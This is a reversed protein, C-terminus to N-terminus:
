YSCNLSLTTITGQPRCLLGSNQFNTIATEVSDVGTPENGTPSEGSGLDLAGEVSADTNLAGEANYMGELEEFFEANSDIEVDGETDSGAASSSVAETPAHGEASDSHTEAGFDFDGTNFGAYMSGGDVAVAAPNGSGIDIADNFADNFGCVPALAGDDVFLCGSSLALQLITWAAPPISGVCEGTSDSANVPDDDAYSYPEDTDNVLPDVTLFQSSAPDYYRARLYILGDPDTLAGTYGRLSTAGTHRTVAGYSSYDYSGAVTGTATTLLRVSGQQDLQLYDVTNGTIQEIPEGGPGNVFTTAGAALLQPTGQAVDWLDTQKDRGFQSTIRLGDGDYSFSATTKGDRWTVLRGAQDYTLRAPGAATRDGLKDYKYTVATSGHRALTSLEGAANYTLRAGPLRTVEDGSNYSYAGAGDKAVQGLDTYGYSASRTGEAGSATSKTVQGLPNDTLTLSLQTTGDATLTVTAPTDDRTYSTTTTAGNPYDTKVLNGDADYSFRTTHGLWDGVSLLRGDADYKRTVKHDGPYVIALLEGDNDYRYAVTGGKSWAVKTIKGEYNYSYTTTGTSDKMRTREGDANYSLTVDATPDKSYRISKTQGDATYAYRTVRGLADTVAALQGAADYTYGSKGAAPSVSATQQGLANYTFTTTQGLGNSWSAMEGDRTWTEHIVSGNARQYRLLENDADYVYRSTQGALDTAALLFHDGNYSRRSTAGEPDTASTVDGFPDYTFRTTYDAATAGKLNGRPNTVSTARGLVDFVSTTTDGTPDTSSTRDGDIDYGYTTTRGDGDTIATVDGPYESDGYTETVTSGTSGDARTITLVNGASDYTYTTTNGTATTVVLPEGFSNYTSTATYGAYDTTSTVDGSADYSSSSIEGEPDTVTDLGNTLLDYSYRTTAALPTGAARTSSVLEGDLFTDVTKSGTPDTMTTQNPSYAFSTRRGMPDSQSTVRGARNYVNTTKGGDPDIMSLMRHRSDYSFSWVGGGQDTVSTLDDSTNYRFSMTYGSPEHLSSMLGNSGYGFTLTRGAPDTVKTLRGASYSLSTLYGNRDVESVLQGAKDFGYQDGNVPTFTYGGGVHATLTALVRAPAVYEGLGDSTFAVQAGNQEHVTVVGTTADTTIAMGYSDAWGYGLPGRKSALGSSYTRTFQLPIGRGPVTVDTFEHWFEGTSCDVPWSASCTTPQEVPSGGGILESPGPALSSLNVRVAPPGGMWVDGEADTTLALASYDYGPFANVLTGFPFFYAGGGPLLWGIGDGIGGRFGGFYVRGGLGVALGTPFLDGPVLFRTFQGSPTVRDIFGPYDIMWLDGNSARVIDNLGVYEDTVAPVNKDLLTRVVGAATISFVAATGYPGGVPADAGGPAYLDKGSAAIGGTFVDPEGARKSPLSFMTLKGAPTIRGFTGDAEVTSFPGPRYTTFWVDGDAGEAVGLPDVSKDPIKFLTISGSSSIRGIEDDYPLMFWMDGDSGEVIGQSPYFNLYPPEGDATPYLWLQVVGSAEAEMVWSRGCRSTQEKGCTNDFNGVTWTSGHPGEAVGYSGFGEGTSAPVIVSQVGSTTISCLGAGSDALPVFWLTDDPGAALASPESLNSCVGSLPYTTFAGSGSVKTVGDSDALWLDGDSGIATSFLFEGVDDTFPTPSGGTVPFVETEGTFFSTGAGWVVNGMTQLFTPSDVSTGLSVLSAGGDSNVTVVNACGNGCSSSSAVGTVTVAGSTGTTIDQTDDYTCNCSGQDIPYSVVSSASRNAVTVAYVLDSDPNGDAVWIRGDRGVVIALPCGLLQPISFEKVVGGDIDGVGGEVPPGEGQLASDAEDPVCWSFWVLGDPGVVLGKKVETEADGRVSASGSDSINPAPYAIVHGGPTVTAIGNQVAEWMTGTTKDYVLGSESNLADATMSFVSPVSRAASSAEGTLLSVAGSTEATTAANLPLPRRSLPMRCPLSARPCAHRM